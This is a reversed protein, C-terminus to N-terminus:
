QGAMRNSPLQGTSSHFNPLLSERRSLTQSRETLTMVDCHQRLALIDQCRRVRSPRSLFRAVVGRSKASKRMRATQRMKRKRRKTASGNSTGVADM